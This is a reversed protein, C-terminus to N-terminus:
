TADAIRWTVKEVDQRQTLSEAIRQVAADDRRRAQFDVRIREGDDTEESSIARMNFKADKIAGIVADRVLVEAASDCEVLLAYTKPGHAEAFEAARRDLQEVAPQLCLNFGLIALAGLVAQELLGLGVFAGVAATSWITAATNLGTINTGERLIVGGALFGVGTVINALVRTADAGPELPKLSAYLAAGIAVLASTHLGAGKQRWQREWGIAAGLAGAEVLQLAFGNAAFM